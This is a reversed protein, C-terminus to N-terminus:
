SVKFQSTKASHSKMVTNNFLNLYVFFLLCKTFLFDIYKCHDNPSNFMLEFENSISLYNFNIHTCLKSNVGEPLLKGNESQMDANFECIIRISKYTNLVLIFTVLFTLYKSMSNKNRIQTYKIM